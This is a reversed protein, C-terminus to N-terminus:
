GKLNSNMKEILYRIRKEPTHYRFFHERGNRAVEEYENSKILYRDIKSKLEEFNSFYIASEGDVFDNPIYIPLRQSLLAAGSCAIEWYRWTDYGIGRLSLGVKSKKLLNIYVDKETIETSIYNKIKTTKLWMQLKKLYDNREPNNAHGLFSIDYEDIHKGQFANIDNVTLQFPILKNFKHRTSVISINIPLNSYSFWRYNIRAERSRFFEYLYRIEWELKNKQKIKDKYVERKLYFKIEPHYYINRIFFDDWGDVYIKTASTKKNLINKFNNDLVSSNFFFIYDFTDIDAIVNESETIKKNGLEIGIDNLDFNKPKYFYICEKGYIETFGAYISKEFFSGRLSHILIKM